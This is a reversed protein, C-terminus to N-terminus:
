SWWVVRRIAKSCPGPPPPNKHTLCGQVSLKGHADVKPVCGFGQFWGGLGLLTGLFGGMFGGEIRLTHVPRQHVTASRFPHPFSVVNLQTCIRRAYPTPTLANFTSSLAGVLVVVVVATLIATGELWGMPDQWSCLTDSGFMLARICPECVKTASLDLSSLLLSPSFILNCPGPNLASGGGGGGM